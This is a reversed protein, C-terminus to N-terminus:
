VVIILNQMAKFQHYSKAVVLSECPSISAHIFEKDLIEQLQTKLEQLEAPAMRHMAMSILVSGPQLEILFNIKWFQPLRPLEEPFVDTYEDVVWPLGGSIGDM